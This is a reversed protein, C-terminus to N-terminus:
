GSYQCLMNKRCTSWASLTLAAEDGWFLILTMVGEFQFDLILLLITQVKSLLRREFLDTSRSEPMVAGAAATLL